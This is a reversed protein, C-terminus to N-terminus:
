ASYIEFDSKKCYDAIKSWLANRLEKTLVGTRGNGIIRNDVKTIGAIEAITGSIFIEDAEMLRKKDFMEESVAAGISDALDIILKRTIGPLINRTLPHTLIQNSFVAFVNSSSGERVVDTDGLLIGESAGKEAAQQAAMVNWLLNLTKLDCRGWRYDPLTIAKIGDELIEEPIQPAERITAVLNPKLNPPIVHSRPAVGRTISFYLKARKSESRSCLTKVVDAVEALDANDIKLGSLSQTLRKMHEAFLFPKQSHVSIVEYVGDGFQYGRDDIPVFAESIPLYKGNLYALEPM